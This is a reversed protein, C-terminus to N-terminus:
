KVVPLLKWRFKHFTTNSYYKNFLYFLEKTFSYKEVQGNDSWMIKIYHNTQKDFWACRRVSKGIVIGVRKKNSYRTEVGEKRGIVMDGIHFDGATIFKPDCLGPYYTYELREVLDDLEDVSRSILTGARTQLYYIKDKYDLVIYAKNKKIFTDGFKYKSM